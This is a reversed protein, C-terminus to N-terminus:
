CKKSSSNEAQVEVQTLHHAQGPGAVLEGDYTPPPTTPAKKM